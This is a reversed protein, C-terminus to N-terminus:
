MVDIQARVYVNSLKENILHLKFSGYIDDATIIGVVDRYAERGRYHLAKWQGYYDVSAWSFVPWLDNIQWYLSGM